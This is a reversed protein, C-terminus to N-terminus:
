SSGWLKEAYAKEDEKEETVVNPVEYVEEDEDPIEEEVDIPEVIKEREQAALKSMAFKTAPIDMSTYRPAPVVFPM